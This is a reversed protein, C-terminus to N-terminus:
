SLVELTSKRMETQKEQDQEKWPKEMVKQIECSTIVMVIKVQENGKRAAASQLNVVGLQMCSFNDSLWVPNKEPLPYGMFSCPLWELLCWDRLHSCINLNYIIGTANVVVCMKARRSCFLGERYCLFMGERESLITEWIVVRFELGWGAFLASAWEREGMWLQSCLKCAPKWCTLPNSSSPPVLAM